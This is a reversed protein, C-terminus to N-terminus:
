SVSKGSGVGYDGGEPGELPGLARASGFSAM